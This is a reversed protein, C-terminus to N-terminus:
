MCKLQLSSHERSHSANNEEQASRRLDALVDVAVGDDSARAAFHRDHLNVDLAVEDRREDLEGVGFDAEDDVLNTRAACTLQETQVYSCEKWLM